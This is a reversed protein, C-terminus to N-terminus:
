EKLILTENCYKCKIKEGDLYKQIHEAPIRNWCYPCHNLHISMSIDYFQEESEIINHKLLENRIKNGIEALFGTIQGQDNASVEIELTKSEGDLLLYTIIRNKKVKTTGYFYAEGFKDAESFERSILKIDYNGLVSLLTSFILSIKDTNVVPFIKKDRHTLSRQLRKVRALNAEERTFFIPCTIAIMKPKMPIAQPQDEADYFSVTANLPSELCNIPELYLSVVKKENKGLKSILISDGKREYKAPEYMVWKLADPLDFTIRFGTLPNNTNNILGVKFRVQGGIFEFERVIKLVKERKEAKLRSEVKKYDSDEVDEIIVKTTLPTIGILDDMKKELEEQFNRVNVIKTKINEVLPVFDPNKKAKKLAASYLSITEATIELSDTLNKDQLSQAAELKNDATACLKEIDLQDLNKRIADIKTKINNTNIDLKETKIFDILKVFDQIADNWEEEAKSLDLKGHAKIANKNHKNAGADLANRINEKIMTMNNIIKEKQSTSAVVELTKEFFKLSSEWNDVAKAYEKSSFFTNGENVLKKADRILREYIKTKDVEDLGPFENRHLLESFFFGTWVYFGLYIIFNSFFTSIQINSILGGIILIIGLLGFLKILEIRGKIIDVIFWVVWIFVGILGILYIFYDDDEIGWLSIMILFISFIAFIDRVDIWYKVRKFKVIILFFSVLVLLTYLSLLLLLGNYNAPATFALIIVGLIFLYYPIYYIRKEAKLFSLDIGPKNRKSKEEIKSNISKAVVILICNILTYIFIAMFFEAVLEEASGIPTEAWIVFTISLAVTSFTCLCCLTKGKEKESKQKTFRHKVDLYSECTICYSADPPKLVSGCKPCNKTM